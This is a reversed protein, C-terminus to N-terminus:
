RPLFGISPIGGVVIEDEAIRDINGIANFTDPYYDPFKQKLDQGHSVGALFILLTLGLLLGPWTGKINHRSLFSSM